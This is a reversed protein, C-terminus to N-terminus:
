VLKKAFKSTDGVTTNRLNAKKVYSSLDLEVKANAGLSKPKQFYERM